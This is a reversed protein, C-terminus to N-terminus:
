RSCINLLRHAVHLHFAWCMMRHELMGTKRLPSHLKLYRYSIPSCLFTLFSSLANFQCVLLTPPDRGHCHHATFQMSTSLALPPSFAFRIIVSDAPIAHVTVPHRSFVVNSLFTLQPPSMCANRLM